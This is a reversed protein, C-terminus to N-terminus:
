WKMQEILFLTAGFAIGACMLGGYVIIMPMFCTLWRWRAPKGIEAAKLVLFVFTLIEAVVM